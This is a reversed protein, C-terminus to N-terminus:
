GEMKNLVDLVDSTLEQESQWIVGDSTIQRGDQYVEKKIKVREKREIVPSVPIDCGVGGLSDEIEQSITEKLDQGLKEIGSKEEMKESYLNRGATTSPEAEINKEEAVEGQVSQKIIKDEAVPLLNGDDDFQKLGEGEWLNKQLELIQAAVNGPDKILNFSFNENEGATEVFVVGINLMTQILGRVQSSVDQVHQYSTESVKQGFLVLQEFRLIRKNTLVFVDLYYDLWAIYFFGLVALLYIPGFVLYAGKALNDSVLPTVAVQGIAIGSDKMGGYALVSGIFFVLILVAVIVITTIFSIWHRRIVTVIKEDEYLDLLIGRERFM